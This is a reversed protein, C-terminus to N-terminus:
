APRKAAVIVESSIALTTVTAHHRFSWTTQDLYETLEIPRCGGVLAPRLSWLAQWVRTLLQAPRTAGTTLSALCLLGSPALLRHAERLLLRIDDPSLLDLVYTALFRDFSGDSFPLRISGDSLQLEVRSIDRLRRAALVHMRRSVDVGTYRAEAPLNRALLREALAGTGHGFECVAHAHEFDGHALLATIARHEYFAQLDQIRGIRDYVRRAQEATLYGSPAPGAPPPM